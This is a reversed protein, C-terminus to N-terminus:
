GIIRPGARARTLSEFANDSSRPGSLGGRGGTQLAAQGDTEDRLLRLALERLDAPLDRLMEAAKAVTGRAYGTASAGRYCPQAHSNM